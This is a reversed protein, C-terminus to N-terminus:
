RGLEKRQPAVDIGRTEEWRAEFAGLVRPDILALREHRERERDYVKVFNAQGAREDGLCITRWGVSEVAATIAPHDFVPSGGAGVRHVEGLVARWAAAGEPVDPRIVARRFEGLSPMWTESQAHMRAALSAAGFDLDDLGDAFTIVQEETLPHGRHSAGLLAVVILAEKRNV